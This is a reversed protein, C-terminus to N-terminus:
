RFYFFLTYKYTLIALLVIIIFRSHSYRKFRQWWEEIELFLTERSFCERETLSTFNSDDRSTSESYFDDTDTSSSSSASRDCYYCSTDSDEESNRRSEDMSSSGDMSIYGSGSSLYTADSVSFPDADSINYTDNSGDEDDESSTESRSEFMKRRCSACLFHSQGSSYSSSTWSEMSSWDDMSSDEKRPSPTEMFKKIVMCAENKPSKSDNM